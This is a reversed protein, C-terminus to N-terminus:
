RTLMSPDRIEPRSRLVMCSPSVDSVAGVGGRGECKVVEDVWNHVGDTRDEDEFSVVGYNDLTVCLIQM